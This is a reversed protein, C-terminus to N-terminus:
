LSGTGGEALAAYTQVCISKPRSRLERGDGIGEAGGLGDVLGLGEYAAGPRADKLLSLIEDNWIGSVTDGKLHFYPNLLPCPSDLDIFRIRLSILAPYVKLCRVAAVVLATFLKIFAWSYIGTTDDWATGDRCCNKVILDISKLRSNDRENKLANVATSFLCSCIRGTYSLSEFQPALRGLNQCIHNAPYAKRWKPLDFSQKGYLGEHCINIHNIPRPFNKLIACMANYSETKPKAYACHWERLNPVARAITDFDSDQRIINWAGKLVLTTINPLIPLRNRSKSLLRLPNAQSSSMTTTLSPNRFHQIRPPKKCHGGEITM